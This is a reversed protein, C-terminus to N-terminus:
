GVPFETQAYQVESKKRVTLWYGLTLPGIRGIFMVVMIIVKGVDGLEGTTGRSLGVTGFASVVEFAINLFEDDVLITLAFVGIFVTAMALTTIALAKLLAERSLSRKFFTVQMNGRLFSRTAALLIVFTSLKIGSATSNPAGGIFMLLLFMVATGATVASIDLTNFGATRPTTGQFWAALLKDPLGELAGLTLPNDYELALFTLTAITNLAVTAILILKAYVSLKRFSRKELIEAVVVYGLGGTIFLLTVTLSIGSHSIYDSLSDASLAFGSNNFASITYFFAHYLGDSTGKEPVFFTALLLFGLTEMCLAFLAISGGAKRATKLSINNFAEQAVVQQSLGIKFGLAMATLVAFTMLGLGGLQILTLIVLQGFLTYQTGTDVVVLGTVTIGSTATFLADVWTIPAHTAFPLKLLCAGVIILLAFSEILLGLPNLRKGAATDRDQKRVLSLVSSKM